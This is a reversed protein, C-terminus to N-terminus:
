AMVYFVVKALAFCVMHAVFAVRMGRNRFVRELGTAAVAALAWMGPMTYRWLLATVLAGGWTIALFVLLGASLSRDEGGAIVRWLTVLAGMGVLLSFPVGWSIGTAVILKWLSWM